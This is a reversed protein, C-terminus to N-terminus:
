PIHQRHIHWAKQWQAENVRTFWKNYFVNNYHAVNEIYANESYLGYYGGCLCVISYQGVLIYGLPYKTINIYLQM